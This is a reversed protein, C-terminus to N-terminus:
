RSRGYFRQPRGCVGRRLLARCFSNPNWKSVNGTHFRNVQREAAACWEACFLSMLNEARFHLLFLGLPTHRARFAGIPDYGVGLHKMCFSTLSESEAPTLPNRLPYLWVRGHYRKVRLRILHAQVGEVHVGQLVCPLKCSKTAEFVLPRGSGPNNAVIGVHSISWFPIGWTALNIGAGGLSCSSFALVDGPKPQRQPM